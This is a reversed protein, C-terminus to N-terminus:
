SKMYRVASKVSVESPSSSDLNDGEITIAGLIEFYGFFCRFCFFSRYLIRSPPSFNQDYAKWRDYYPSNEGHKENTAIKSLVLRYESASSAM